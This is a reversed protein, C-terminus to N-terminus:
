SGCNWNPQAMRFIADLKRPDIDALVQGSEVSHAINPSVV